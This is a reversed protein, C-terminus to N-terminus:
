TSEGRLVAKPSSSWASASIWCNTGRPELVTRAQSFAHQPPTPPQIPTAAPYKASGDRSLMVSNRCGALCTPM